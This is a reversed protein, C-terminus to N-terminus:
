KLPLPITAAGTMEILIAQGTELRRDSQTSKIIGSPANAYFKGDEFVAIQSANGQIVDIGAVDSLLLIGSDYHPVGVINWGPNLPLPANLLTGVLHLTRPEKLAAFVGTEAEIISDNAGGFYPKLENVGGPVDPSSTVLWHVNESGGLVDYLESIRTITGPAGNVINVGIPLHILNLGGQVALRITKQFNPAPIVTVFLSQSDMDGGSDFLRLTISREGYKDPYPTITLQHGNIKATFYETKTPEVEWRLDGQSDEEDSAYTSLDFDEPPQDSQVSLDPITGFIEPPTNPPESLDTLVGLITAASARSSAATAGIHHWQIIGEKDVIFTSPIAINSREGAHVRYDKITERSEDSLIPFTVGNLRGGNIAAKSVGPSDVSIAYM